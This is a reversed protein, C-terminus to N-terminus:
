YKLGVRNNYLVLCADENTAPNLIEEGIKIVFQGKMDQGINVKAGDPTQLNENNLYDIPNEKYVHWDILTTMTNNEWNYIITKMIDEGGLAYGSTLFFILSGASDVVPGIKNNLLEGGKFFHGARNARASHNVNRSPFGEPGLMYTKQNIAMFVGNATGAGTVNGGYGVM